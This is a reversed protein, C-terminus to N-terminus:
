SFYDGLTEKELLRETKEQLHLLRKENRLFFDSNKNFVAFLPIGQETACVVDYLSKQLLASAAAYVVDGSDERRRTILGASELRSCIRGAGARPVGARASIENITAGVRPPEGPGTGGAIADLIRLAYETDRKFQM